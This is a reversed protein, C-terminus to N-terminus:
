DDGLDLFPALARALRRVALADTLLPAAEEGVAM